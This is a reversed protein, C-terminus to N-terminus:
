GRKRRVRKRPALGNPKPKVEEEVEPMMDSWDDLGFLDIADEGMYDRVSDFDIFFQYVIQKGTLNGARYLRAITTRHMGTKRSVIGTSAYGKTFMAREIDTIRHTPM